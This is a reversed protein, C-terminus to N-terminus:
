DIKNDISAQAAFPWLLRAFSIQGQVASELRKPLVRLFLGLGRYRRRCGGAHLMNRYIKIWRLESLLQRSLSQRYARPLHKAGPGSRIICQAAIQASRHAYYIGEGLLPDALGCADGVLLVRGRGPPDLYNGMPLPHSGIANMPNVSLGTAAMFRDFAARTPQNGKQRLNAIGAIAGNRGPFSWAYGWPVFGFYLAAYDKPAQGRPLVLHTELTAALQSKWRRVAPPGSLISRRAQSAVGDAGIITKAQIRVGNALTATGSDPDISRVAHGTMARAGAQTASQFWHHDYTRREVFHFPYDLHGGAIQATKFYIRYDTTQHTIVGSAALDGPSLHFISRILDISKWTLLGACLKPRPFRKRDALVVDYGRSALLYAATSGAPGGGIVLIDCSTDTEM